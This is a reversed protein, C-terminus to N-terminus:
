KHSGSPKEGSFTLQVKEKELLAFFNRTQSDMRINRNLTCKEVCSNKVIRSYCRINEFDPSTINISCSRIMKEDLFDLVEAASEDTLEGEIVATDGTRSIRCLAKGQRGSIEATESASGNGSFFLGTWGAAMTMMIVAAQIKRKKRISGSSVPMLATIGSILPFIMLLFAARGQVRFHGPIESLMGATWSILEYLWDTLMCPLRGAQDSLCSVFFSFLSLPMFLSIEPVIVLNGALGTYNIEGLVALIVPASLIQVSATVALSSGPFGPLFAFIQKMRGAFILLAAAAGFSLQFGLSYLDWPSILLIVTGAWFLINFSNHERYLLRQIFFFGFMLVARFLSVPIGAIFLYCTILILSLARGASAPILLLSVTLLPLGGIIGVHLGSAALVHSTGSRRFDNLIKKSMSTKDSFYLGRILAATEPAFSGTIIKEAKQRILEAPGPSGKKEMFCNKETLLVTCGTGQRLLQKTFVDPNKRDTQKVAASIIIRDGPSLELPPLATAQILIRETDKFSEIICAQSYRNKKVSVVSGRFTDPLGSDGRYMSCFTRAAGTGALILLMIMAPLRREATMSNLGAPTFIFLLSGTILVASIIVSSPSGFYLGNILLNSGATGAFFCLSPVLIHKKM